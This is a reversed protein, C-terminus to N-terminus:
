HQAESTLVPLEERAAFVDRLWLTCEADWSWLRSRGAASVHVVQTATLLAGFSVHVADAVRAVSSWDPVLYGGEYPWSAPDPHTGAFTAPHAVCLRHWDVASHVEVIRAGPVAVMRVRRLPPQADWDTAGHELIATASSTGREHVETWTLVRSAPKHAYREWASPPSAPTVLVPDPTGVEDVWVQRERALPAFWWAAHPHVLVRAALTRLGRARGLADRVVEDHDARWPSV